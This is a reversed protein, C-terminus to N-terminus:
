SDSACFVAVSAPRATIQVGFATKRCFMNVAVTEHFCYQVVVCDTSIRLSIESEEKATSVTPPRGGLSIEDHFLSVVSYSLCQVSNMEDNAVQVFHSRTCVGTHLCDEAVSLSEFWVRVHVCACPV